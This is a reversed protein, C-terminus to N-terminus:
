FNIILYEVPAIGGSKAFAYRPETSRQNLIFAEMYNFVIHRMIRISTALLNHKHEYTFKALKKSTGQYEYITDPLLINLSIGTRGVKRFWARAMPSTWTNEDFHPFDNGEEMVISNNSTAFTRYHVLCNRLDILYQLAWTNAIRQYIPCDTKDAELDAISKPLNKHAFLPYLIYKLNDLSIRCMNVFAYFEYMLNHIQPTHMIFANADKVAQTRIFVEHTIERYHNLIARFHYIMGKLHWEAYVGKIHHETSIGQYSALPKSLAQLMEGLEKEYINTNVQM